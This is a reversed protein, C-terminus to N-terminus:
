NDRTSYQRMRCHPCTEASAQIEKMCFWCLKKSSDEPSVAMPPRLIFSLGIMIAGAGLFAFGFPLGAMMLFLGFVIVVVGGFALSPSKM